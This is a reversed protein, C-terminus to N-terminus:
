REPARVFHLEKVGFVEALSPLLEEISHRADDAKRVPLFPPKNLAVLGTKRTDVHVANQVLDTLLADKDKFVGATKYAGKLSRTGFKSMTTRTQCHSKISPMAARRMAFVTPFNSMKAQVQVKLIQVISEETVKENEISNLTKNRKM